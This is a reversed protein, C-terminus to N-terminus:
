AGGADSRRELRARTHAREELSLPALEHLQVEGDESPSRPPGEGVDQVRRDIPKLFMLPRSPGGIGGVSPPAGAFGLRGATSEHAIPRHARQNVASRTNSVDMGPDFQGLRALRPVTSAGAARADRLSRPPVM